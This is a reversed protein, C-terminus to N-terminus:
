KAAVCNYVPVPILTTTSGTVVPQWQYCAFQETQGAPCDAGSFSGSLFLGLIIGGAAAMLGFCFLLPHDLIWDGTM